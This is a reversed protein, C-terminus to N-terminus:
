AMVATIETQKRRYQLAESIHAVTIDKSNELDAITRAVKIVRMYSRASLLLKEAATNLLATAEASLQAYQKIQRNDMDANLKSTDKLRKGQILRGQLVRRAITTSSETDTVTSLLKGHDISTVTIHMDIRDMVPGSLKRQYTNIQLLSCSCDTASGYYGCPCPNATAVLIFRAPFLFSGKARTVTISRDELPQRLSEITQRSFEPLEDLFLVGHHSLSIEGPKPRQQGGTISTHSASHHPSRFPRETVLAEYNDSALSHLHSVELIEQPSLPPLISCLAKALMSKGTGPPGSLLINHGGTAAIELARKAQVQGTVDEMQISATPKKGQHVLLGDTIQVTLPSVKTIHLFLEQLNHIAIVKLGQIAEAQALNAHPIVYTYDGLKQSALLTGIIGRIPRLSGDLGLEGIFMHKQLDEQDTQDIQQSAALIAVAIALDLSTGDKPVDAPALNITIRKKPFKLNSNTYASRVREKAEDISRSASGIIIMSPLGNSIQCEIDVLLGQMGACMISQCKASMGHSICCIKHSFLVM